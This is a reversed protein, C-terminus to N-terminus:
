YEDQEGDDIMEILHCIADGNPIANTMSQWKDMTLEMRRQLENLEALKKKNDELRQRIIDRASPCPSQGKDSHDFLTQIDQLTFGLAKARKIFAVKKVDSKNFLQYGNDPHRTPTILGTRAYYRIADPTVNVKKSVDNVTLM